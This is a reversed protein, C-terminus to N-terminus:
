NSDALWKLFEEYTFNYQKSEEILNQSIITWELDEDGNYSNSIYIRNIGQNEKFYPKDFNQEWSVKILVGNLNITLIPYFSGSFEFPPIYGPNSNKDFGKITEKKNTDYYTNQNIQVIQESKYHSLNIDFASKSSSTVPLGELSKLEIKNRKFVDDSVNKIKIIDKNWKGQELDIPSFMLSSYTDKIEDGEILISNQFNLSLNKEKQIFFDNKSIQYNNLVINIIKTINNGKLSIQILKTNSINFENNLINSSYITSNYINNTNIFNPKYKYEKQSNIKFDIENVANRNLFSFDFLFVGSNNDWSFKIQSKNISDNEWKSKEQTIDKGQNDLYFSKIEYDKKIEFVDTDSDVQNSESQKCNQKVVLKPNPLDNIQNLNFNPIYM